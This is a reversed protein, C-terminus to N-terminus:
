KFFFGADVPKTTLVSTYLFILWIEYWLRFKSFPHIMYYYSNLHRDQEERISVDSRFCEFCRPNEASITIFKQINKFCRTTKTSNDLDNKEKIECKM